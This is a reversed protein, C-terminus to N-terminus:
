APPSHLQHIAKETQGNLLLPLVELTRAIAAEILRRDDARAPKLLHGIVQERQGPHGVGMRLRLFDASGLKPIIDRLGNHGGHGGGQKLRVTGAPFDLEDHAVLMASAAIHHFRALPAVANGSLNMFTGPKLLWLEQGHLQVKAVEGHFRAQNRFVGGTQAALADLFWFGANHPTAAYEAGPNGLGAILRIGGAM